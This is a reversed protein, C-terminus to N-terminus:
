HSICLLQNLCKFISCQRHHTASHLHIQQSETFMSHTKQTHHMVSGGETPESPTAMRPLVSWCGIHSSSRKTMPRLAPDDCALRGFEGLPKLGRPSLDHAHNHDHPFQVHNAHDAYLHLIIRHKQQSMHWWKCALRGYFLNLGHKSQSGAGYASPLTKVLTQARSKGTLFWEKEAFWCITNVTAWAPLLNLMDLPRHDRVTLKICHLCSALMCHCRHKRPRPRGVERLPVFTIGHRSTLSAKSLALWLCPVGQQSSPNAFM